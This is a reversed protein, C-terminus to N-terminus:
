AGFEHGRGFAAAAAWAKLGVLELGRGEVKEWWGAGKKNTGRM